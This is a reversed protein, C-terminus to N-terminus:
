AVSRLLARVPSADLSDLKLPPAILEYAGAPVDDLVLGELIAMRHRKIAQHASMTKSSQPDLSPSDIGILCAGREALLDITESAVATFDSQWEHHPFQLYTKFIVREVQDPLQDIIDQPKVWGVAQTADIVVCPGIYYELSVAEMSKGQADYHVPADAHTGSHCSLSFQGVNVPCQESMEWHFYSSFATDGPWVPLGQRLTQSIDWIKTM